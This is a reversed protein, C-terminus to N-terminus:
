QEMADERKKTPSVERHRRQKLAEIEERLTRILEEQPFGPHIEQSGIGERVLRGSARRATM